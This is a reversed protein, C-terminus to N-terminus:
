WGSEAGAGSISTRGNSAAAPLTRGHGGGILFLEREDGLGPGRCTVHADIGSNFEDTSQSSHRHILMERDVFVDVTTELVGQGVCGPLLHQASEVGFENTSAQSTGAFGRLCQDLGSMHVDPSDYRRLGGRLHAIVARDDHAFCGVVM